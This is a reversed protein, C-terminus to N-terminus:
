RKEAEDRIHGLVREHIRHIIYDSLPGWYGQPFLSHRYWTTGELITKGEREDLKFQGHESVMRGHLHPPDIEKWISIERIPPPNETVDFALLSPEEWRTIPEVFSGTDFTCYRLAGPGRGEIRAEVPYAVGWRLIGTPPTEIKPFAIVLDWVRERPADIIVRTVVQRLPAVPSRASDFAVLGPFMPILLALLFHSGNRGNKSGWGSSRFLLYGFAVGPLALLASLPFAMLLCFAGDWGFLIAAVGTALQAVIANTYAHLFHAGKQFYSFFAAVVAMLFPLGVFLTWGLTIKVCLWLGLMGVLLSM